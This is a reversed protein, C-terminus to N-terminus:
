TQGQGDGTRRSLIAGITPPGFLTTLLVLLWLRGALINYDALLKEWPVAAVFHFFGFEFCVTMVTWLIGIVASPAMPGTALSATGIM